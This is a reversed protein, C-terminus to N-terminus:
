ANRSSREKARGSQDRLSGRGSLIRGDSRQARKAVNAGQEAIQRGFAALLACPAVDGIPQVM